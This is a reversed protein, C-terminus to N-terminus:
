VTRVPRSGCGKRNKPSTCCSRFLDDTSFQSSSRSSASSDSAFRLGHYGCQHSSEDRLPPMGCPQGNQERSYYPRGDAEYGACRHREQAVRAFGTKRFQQLACGNRQSADSRCRVRLRAQVRHGANESSSPSGPNPAAASFKPSASSRKLLSAANETSSSPISRAGTAPSASSAFRVLRKRMWANM